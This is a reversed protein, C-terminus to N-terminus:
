DGESSTNIFFNKVIPGGRKIETDDHWFRTSANDYFFLGVLFSNKEWFKQKHIDGRSEGM